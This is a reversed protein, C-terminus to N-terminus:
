TRSWRFLTQETCLAKVELQEAKQHNELSFRFGSHGDRPTLLAQLSPRHESARTEQVLVGDAFLGIHVPTKDESYFAWGIIHKDAVFGMDHFCFAQGKAHVEFQKDLYARVDAVFLCDRANWKEIDARTEANVPKDDSPYKKNIQNEQISLSKGKALFSLCESYREMSGVLYFAQWPCQGIMRFQKNTEPPSRYFDEFSQGLSHKHVLYNYESIVREVPDRVFSVTNQAGFLHVYRDSFFHGSLWKKRHTQFAKFFGYEDIPNVDYIYQRVLASSYQEEHGYDREVADDGFWDTASKTLSSGATKPIHLFLIPTM